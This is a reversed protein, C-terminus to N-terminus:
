GRIDLEPQNIVGPGDSTRYHLHYPYRGYATDEPIEVSCHTGGCMASLLTRVGGKEGSGYYSPTEFEIRLLEVDGGYWRVTTGRFAPASYPDVTLMGEKDPRVDPRVRIVTHGQEDWCDRVWSCCGAWFFSFLAVLAFSCLKRSIRM